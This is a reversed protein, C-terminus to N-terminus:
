DYGELGTQHRLIDRDKRYGTVLYNWSKRLKESDVDMCYKVKIKSSMLPWQGYAKASGGSRFFIGMEQLLVDFLDLKGSM